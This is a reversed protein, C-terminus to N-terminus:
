PVHPDSAIVKGKGLTTVVAATNFKDSTFNVLVEQVQQSQFHYPGAGQTQLFGGLSASVRQPRFVSHRMSSQSFPKKGVCGEIPSLLDKQCLSHNIGM